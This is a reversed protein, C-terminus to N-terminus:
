ASGSDKSRRRPSRVWVLAPPSAPDRSALLLVVAALLGLAAWALVLAADPGDGDWPLLITTRLLPEAIMVTTGLLLVAPAVRAGPEPDGRQVLVASCAGAVLCLLVLEFTAVAIPPRSDQWGLVLLCGAWAGALLAAGGALGLLRRRWLTPPTVSTLQAAADDFLYAAGGALAFLAVRVVFPPVGADPQVLAALIVLVPVSLATLALPLSV